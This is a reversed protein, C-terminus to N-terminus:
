KWFPKSLEQNVSARDLGIDQLMHDDLAALQQRQRYVDIWHQMRGMLDSLSETLAHARVYARQALVTM